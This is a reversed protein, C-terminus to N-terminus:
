DVYHKLSERYESPTVGFKDLFLRYFTQVTSMGCEKAISDITYNPHAKMMKVAYELRLNNIYKPFSAGVYQRFLRAFKNKPIYVTKILEERSFDPQLYLQKSVIEWQVKEFLAKDHIEYNSMGEDPLFTDGTKNGDAQPMEKAFRSKAAQLQARLAINEKRKLDLEEKYELLDNIVGVMARNKFRVTLYHHLIRWLVIGLLFVICSIFILSSNRIRVDDAQKQILLDKEHIEYAAALELATSKQERNKISDRLVALQDFYLAATKYDGKERYAQGLSKKITTMHYNVTDGTAILSKERATNMRIVENYMRRDFLYPMILYNDRDYVNGAALFKQYYRDAQEKKGLRFLVVARNAYLAKMEKQDLGEIFTEEGTRGSIVKELRDLTKLAEKNLGDKIQSILLTNYDYRLNDYKKEFATEEMKKAAQQMYAYGAQKNGQNYVMKGMNFLAISKMAEDGTQEAKKLLLGIYQAKKSEDHLCDYCSIMRHLLEMFTRSDATVPDSNLARQFFNLAQHYKGTNFYFDGETIDLEHGAIRKQKRLLKIIQEAKEPASFTYEYVKDETLPGEVGSLSQADVPTIAVPFVWVTMLVFFLLQKM